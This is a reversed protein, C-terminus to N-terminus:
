SPSRASTARRSRRRRQTQTKGQLLTSTASASPSTEPRRQAADLRGQRTGSVVRFLTIRGAFPDAVTKWVFAAAPATDAGSRRRYRRDKATAAFPREAPSPVYASSRTSCRSCASTPRRRPASSRSSAAAAVGRKLGAVLEDQTLTGADFFKEM